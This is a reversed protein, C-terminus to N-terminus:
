ASRRAVIVLGAAISPFHSLLRDIPQVFRPLEPFPIGAVKEVLFGNDNVFAILARRTFLRLHGVLGSGPRGYVKRFSVESFAPQLGFLLSARNFWAALNPTSLLLLGSPRLVRRIESLISDTDVLHEIVENLIVIDFIDDGFPLFDGEASAMLVSSGRSRADQLAASSLDICVVHPENLHQAVHHVGVGAGSGIDLIRPNQPISAWDVLRSQAVHMLPPSSSHEGMVMSEYFRTKADRHNSRTTM